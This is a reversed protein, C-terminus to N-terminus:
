LCAQPLRKRAKGAKTFGWSLNLAEEDVTTPCENGVSFDYFTSEQPVCSQNASQPHYTSEVRTVEMELSSSLHQDPGRAILNDNIISGSQIQPLSACSNVPPLLPSPAPPVSPLPPLSLPPLSPLSPLSYSLHTPILPKLRPYTTPAFHSSLEKLSETRPLQHLNAPESWPLNVEAQSPKDIHHSQVDNMPTLCVQRDHYTNHVPPRDLHASPSPSARFPHNLLEHLSSLRQQLGEPRSM